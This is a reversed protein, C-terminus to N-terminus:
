LSWLKPNSALYMDVILITIDCLSSGRSRLNSLAEHGPTDIILLGPDKVKIM